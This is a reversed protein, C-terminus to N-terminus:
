VSDLRQRKHPSAQPDYHIDELEDLAEQIVPLVPAYRRKTLDVPEFLKLTTRYSQILNDFFQIPNYTLTEHDLVKQLAEDSMLVKKRDRRTRGTNTKTTAKDGLVSKRYQKLIQLHQEAKELQAFTKVGTSVVKSSTFIVFGMTDGPVNYYLGPFSEPDFRTSRQKKHALHFADLDLDDYGLYCSSVINQVSFRTVQLEPRGLDRGLKARAMHAAVLAQTECRAGSIVLKGTEFFNQTTGSEKGISVTAPFVISDDRANLAEVIEFRNLPANLSADCVVNQVILKGEPIKRQHDRRIKSQNLLANEMKQKTPDSTSMINIFVEM